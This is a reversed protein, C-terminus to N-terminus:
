NRDRESNDNAPAEPLPDALKWEPFRHKNAAFWEKLESHCAQLREDRVEPPAEIAAQLSADPAWWSKWYNLRSLLRAAQKAINGPYLAASEAQKVLLLDILESVGHRVNWIALGYAAPLRLFDETRGELISAFLPLARPDKSEALCFLLSAREARVTLREYGDLLQPIRETDRLHGAVQELRQIAGRREDGSSPDLITTMLREVGQEVPLQEGEWAVREEEQGATTWATPPPTFTASLSLVSTPGPPIPPLKPAAPLPDGPKWDPFRDKNESFWKKIESALLSAKQEDALDTRQGISKAVEEFPFGWSKRRNETAFVNILTHLDYKMRDTQGAPVGSDLLGVFEEVGRRVNWQALSFAAVMRVTDDAEQELVRAFLPLGRPDEASTLCRLLWAKEEAERLDDYLSLLQPTADRNRLRSLRELAKARVSSDTVADVIVKMLVTTGEQAQYEHEEWEVTTYLMKGTAEGPVPVYATSLPLVRKGGKEGEAICPRVSGFTAGVVTCAAVRAIQRTLTQIM